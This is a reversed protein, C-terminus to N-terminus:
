INTEQPLTMQLLIDDDGNMVVEYHTVVSPPSTAERIALNTPGVHPGDPASLVWTCEMNAGHVKSDPNRRAKPLLDYPVPFVSM